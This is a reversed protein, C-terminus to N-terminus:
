SGPCCCVCVKWLGFDLSAVVWHSSPFVIRFSAGRVLPFTCSPLLSSVCSVNCIFSFMADRFPLMTQHTRCFLVSVCFPHRHSCSVSKVLHGLKTSNQPPPITVGYSSISKLVTLHACHLKLAIVPPCFHFANWVWLSFFVSNSCLYVFVETM